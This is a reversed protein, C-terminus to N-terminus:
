DAHESRGPDHNTFPQARWEDQLLAYVFEDGWAGKFIENHIFHAERRMGLRAMLQYSAVNRADCRGVIRQLGLEDFGLALIARTAESAYGHGQYDPHFVFGVEGQQHLRSQWVLSVEGILTASTQLVVALSLRAGEETLSNETQKRALVQQTEALSRAEWYLFRAVDPRAHFAYLDSLDGAQFPRLALRATHIRYTPKLM